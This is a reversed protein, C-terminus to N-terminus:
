RGRFGLWQQAASGAQARRFCLILSLSRAGCPGYVARRHVTLFFPLSFHRDVFADKRSGARDTVEVTWGFAQNSM